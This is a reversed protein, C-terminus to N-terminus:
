FNTARHFRGASRGTGCLLFMLVVLAVGGGCAAFM